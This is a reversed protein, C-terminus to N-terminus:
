IWIRGVPSAATPDKAWPARTEPAAIESHWGDTSRRASATLPHPSCSDRPLLPVWSTACSHSPKAISHSRTHPAVLIAHFNEWNFIDRQSIILKILISILFLVFSLLLISVFASSLLAIFSRAPAKFQRIFHQRTTLSVILFAWRNIHVPSHTHTRWCAPTHELCVRANQAM